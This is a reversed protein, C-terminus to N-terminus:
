ARTSNVIESLKTHFEKSTICEVKLDDCFAKLDNEHENEFHRKTESLNKYAIAERKSNCFFVSYEKAIKAVSLKLAQATVLELLQAKTMEKLQKDDHKAVSIQTTM